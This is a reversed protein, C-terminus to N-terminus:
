STGANIDGPADGVLRRGRVTALMVVLLLTEAPSQFVNHTSLVLVAGLAFLRDVVGVLRYSDTVPVGGMRTAELLLAGFTVLYVVSYDHWYRLVDFHTLVGTMRESAGAGLGGVFNTAAINQWTVAYWGLRSAISGGGVDSFDVVRFELRAEMLWELGLGIVVIMVTLILLRASAAIRRRNPGSYGTYMAMGFLMLLLALATRTGSLVTWVVSLGFCLWWLARRQIVRYGIVCLMVLTVAFMSPSLSFGMFRGRVDFMGGMLAGLPMILTGVLLMTTVMTSWDLLRRDELSRIGVVTLVVLWLYVLDRLLKVVLGGVGAMVLVTTAAGGMLLIRPAFLWGVSLRGLFEAHLIPAALCILILPALVPNFQGASVELGAFLFVLGHVNLLVILTLGLLTGLGRRIQINM